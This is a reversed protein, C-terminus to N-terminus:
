NPSFLSEPTISAAAELWKRDLGEAALTDILLMLAEPPPPSDPQGADSSLILRDGAAEAARALM